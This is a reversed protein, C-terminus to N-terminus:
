KKKTKTGKKKGSNSPKLKPEQKKASVLHHAPPEPASSHLALIGGHNYARFLYVTISASVPVMILSTVLNQWFMASPENIIVVLLVSVLLIIILAIIGFLLISFVTLVVHGPDLRFYKYSDRLSDMPKKGDYAIIVNSFIFFLIMAIMYVIFVLALVFLILSILVQSMASRVIFFYILYIIIAPMLFIMILYIKQLLLKGYMRIGKSAQQKGTVKEGNVHMRAGALGMGYFALAILSQVAMLIVVKTFLNWNPIEGPGPIPLNPTFLSFLIGIIFMYFFPLMLVPKRFVENLSDFVDEVYKFEKM